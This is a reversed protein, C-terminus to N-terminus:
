RILSRDSGRSIFEVFPKLEPQTEALGSLQEVASALPLDSRYLIRYANRLNRIQDPTFGRRKLGESNISHPEAPNGIAMVYPPVDRTVGAHHAMFAHAGIKCFQHVAVYGSLIVWDGLHVHGAIQALNAMIVQNGIVCDHGVHTYAMLLNDDGISTIGRDQVTGRSITCYERIVNHAGISLRTPEGAYKKDQPAEGISAFQFIRNGEGISTHGNIVVHPGIWSGAGITVNPGIMSYPGVDVDAALEAGAAVIARPDIM